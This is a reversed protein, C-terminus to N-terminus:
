SNMLPGGSPRQDRRNVVGSVIIIKMARNPIRASTQCVVNGNIDCCTDLVGLRTVRRSSAADYGTVADQGRLPERELFEVFLECDRPEDDVVLSKQKRQGICLSPAVAKGGRDGLARSLIM